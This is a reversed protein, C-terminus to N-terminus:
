KRRTLLEKFFTQSVKKENIHVNHNFLHSSISLINNEIHEETLPSAVGM